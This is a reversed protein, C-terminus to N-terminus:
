AHWGISPEASSDAVCFSTMSAFLDAMLFAMPRICRQNLHQSCSHISVTRVKNPNESTGSRSEGATHKKFLFLSRCTELCRNLPM